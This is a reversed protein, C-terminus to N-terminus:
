PKWNTSTTFAFTQKAKVPKGGDGRGIGQKELIFGIQLRFGSAHCLRGACPHDIVNVSSLLPVPDQLLGPHIAITCTGAGISRYPAWLHTGHQRARRASRSTPVWCYSLSKRLVTRPRSGLRGHVQGQRRPSCLSDSGHSQSGAEKRHRLTSM